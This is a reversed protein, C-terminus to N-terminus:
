IVGSSALGKPKAFAPFRANVLKGM